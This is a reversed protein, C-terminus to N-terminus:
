SLLEGLIAWSILATAIATWTAITMLNDSEPDFYEPDRRRIWHWFRALPTIALKLYIYMLVIVEFFFSFVVNFLMTIPTDGIPQDNNTWVIPNVILEILTSALENPTM